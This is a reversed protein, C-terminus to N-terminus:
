GRKPQSARRLGAALFKRTKRHIRYAWERSLGSLSPRNRQRALEREAAVAEPNRSSVGCTDYSIVPFGLYRGSVGAQFVRLLWDYDANIRYDLNFSGFRDFLERRAFVSQHCLHEARLNWRNLWDFRFLRTADAERFYADGYVIEAGPHGDIQAKVRALVRDDPFYDNANLFHLWRGKALGIGKNMADYIGLDRESVCLDVLDGYSRIVELSHDNSAGDVVLYEYDRCSQRQLSEMTPRLLEGANWCVTIITFTPSATNM